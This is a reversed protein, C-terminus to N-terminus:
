SFHGNATPVPEEHHAATVAVFLLSVWLVYVNGAYCMYIKSSTFTSDTGTAQNTVVAAIKNPIPQYTNPDSAGIEM